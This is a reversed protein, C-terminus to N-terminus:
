SASTAASGTSHMQPQQPSSALAAQLASIARAAAPPAIPLGQNFNVRPKVLETAFLVLQKSSTQM